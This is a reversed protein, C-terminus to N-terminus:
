VAKIVSRIHGALHVFFSDFASLHTDAGTTTDIISISSSNMTYLSAPNVSLSLLTIVFLAILKDMSALRRKIKIKIKISVYWAM